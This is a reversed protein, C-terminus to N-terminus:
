FCVEEFFDCTSCYPCQICWERHPGDENLNDCM